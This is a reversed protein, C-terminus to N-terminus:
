PKKHPAAVKFIQRRLNRVENRDDYERDGEKVKMKDYTGEPLEKRQELIYILEAHYEFLEDLYLKRLDFLSFGCTVM